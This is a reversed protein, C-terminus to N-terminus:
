GNMEPLSTLTTLNLLMIKRRMNRSYKQTGERPYSGTFLDTAQRAKVWPTSFPSDKEEELVPSHLDVFVNKVLIYPFVSLSELFM